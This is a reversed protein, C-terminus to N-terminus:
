TTHRWRAPAIALRAKEVSGNRKASLCVLILDENRGRAARALPPRNNKKKVARARTAM